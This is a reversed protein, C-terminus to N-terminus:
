NEQAEAFLKNVDESSLCLNTCMVSKLKSQLELGVKAADAQPGAPAAPAAPKYGKRRQTVEDHKDPHHKVYLGNWLGKPHVHKPCWWFEEGEIIKSPGGKITRVRLLGDVYKDDTTREKWAKSGSGGGGGSGAKNEFNTALAVATKAQEKLLEDIKTTLALMKTDRPDVQGWVEKDVMNNYKSRSASILTDPTIDHYVGIGSEVDDQIRQIFNNFHANPGTTLADLVLRRYNTPACGNAALVAHLSEISTLMAKVCNGHNSMRAQEIKKLVTDFGVVTSPDITNYILRMMTVGDYEIEGNPNVYKFKSDQLMLDDWGTASLGNKIIQMVVTRDVRSYFKVKDPASNAPDLDTMAFPAKPIATGTALPTDYIAIASRQCHDVKVQQYQTLLNATSKITGDINWEIPVSRVTDGMASERARFYQHLKESNSKTLDLRDELKLGKTKEKFINHGVKTGPNFKGSYPNTKFVEAPVTAAPPVIAAGAAGVGGAGGAAAMSATLALTVHRQHAQIDWANPLNTTNSRLSRPM